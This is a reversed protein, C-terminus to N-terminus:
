HQALHKTNRVLTVIRALILLLFIWCAIHGIYDGYLSYFTLQQNTNIHQRIAAPQLRNTATIVDGRQNICGSIGTNASRLVSRRHAIAILRSYQFHQHYIPTNGWWGDNTVVVLLTAGKKCASGVFAGYLSEYCNIPAVRTTANLNFVTSGNGKSFAPDINGIDAFIKKIWRLIPESFFHFYPIYEGGPLMKTKHYVEPNNRTHGSKFYFVSNFYDIYNGQVLRATKTLKNNGYNRFSSAGTILNLNPHDKLFKLIPQTITYYNISREELYSPIASEPWIVLRTHPTLQELSLTVLRDIQKAYPVFLSSSDNKETYSDLNPQVIVAELPTETEKHNYYMMLSIALPLILVSGLLTLGRPNNKKLLLHYILLNIVVIWFSGGLIGTYAYWQIWSPLAALGNGLNLWPFTLEWWEWTYHAQELTLWAAILSLYGVYNGKWKRMSYYFYIPLSLCLTNYCSTFIFAAWAARYLWWLTLSNWILFSLFIYFFLYIGQKKWTTLHEVMLLIPVISVFLLFGYWSSCWATSFFIGSLAALLLIYTRSFQNCSIFAFAVQPHCAITSTGHIPQALKEDLGPVRM